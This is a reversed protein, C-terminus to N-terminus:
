YQNVWHYKVKNEKLLNEVDSVSLVDSKVEVQYGCGFLCNVNDFIPSYTDKHGNSKFICRAFFKSQEYHNNFCITM